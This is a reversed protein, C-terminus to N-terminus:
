ASRKKTKEKGKSSKTVELAKEVLALETNLFGKANGASNHFDVVRGYAEEYRGQKYLIRVIGATAQIPLVEPRSLVSIDYMKLAEGDQGAAELLQGYQVAADGSKGGSSFYQSYSSMAVDQKGLATQLRGLDALAEINRTSKVRSIALSEAKEFKGLKLSITIYDKYGQDSLMGVMQGIQLFPVTSSYSGWNMVHVFLLLILVAVSSMATIAKKEEQKRHLDVTDGSTWGCRCVAIGMELNEKSLEAACAPCHTYIRKM